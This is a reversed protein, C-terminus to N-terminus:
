FDNKDMGLGKPEPRGNGAIIQGRDAPPRRITMYELAAGMVACLKNKESQRQKAIVKREKDFDDQIIPLV